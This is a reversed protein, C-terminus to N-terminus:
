RHVGRFTLSRSGGRCLRPIERSPKIQQNQTQGDIGELLVVLSQGFSDNTRMRHRIAVGFLFQNRPHNLNFVAADYRDPKRPNHCGLPHPKRLPLLTEMQGWVEDTLCWGDDKTVLGM